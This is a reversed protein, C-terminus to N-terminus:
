TLQVVRKPQKPNMDKLLRGHKRTEQVLAGFTEISKGQLLPLLKILAEATAKADGLATHRHQASRLRSVNACPM